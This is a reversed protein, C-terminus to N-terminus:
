CRAAAKAGREMMCEIHWMGYRRGRKERVQMGQVFQQDLDLRKEGAPAARKHQLDIDIYPHRPDWLMQEIRIRLMGPTQVGEQLLFPMGVQM